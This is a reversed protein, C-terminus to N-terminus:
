LGDILSLEADDEAKPPVVVKPSVTSKPPDVNKPAYTNKPPDGVKPPDPKKGLDQQLTKLKQLCDEHYKAKADVYHHLCALHSVHTSKLGELLIKTTEAQHDFQAQAQRTEAELKQKEEEDTCRKLKSRLTDLDLRKAELAKRERAIIAVDNDLFKHLPGLFDKSVVHIYEKESTGLQKHTEGAKTLAAGYNTGPGLEQGADVFSQGLIETDTQRPNPPMDLFGTFFEQVRASPNPQIVVEVQKILKDTWNRTIDVDGFLKLFSADLETKEAQGVTEGAMQIVRNFFNMADNAMSKVGQQAQEM